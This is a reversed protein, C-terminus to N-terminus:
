DGSQPDGEAACNEQGVAEVDRNIAVTSPPDTLNYDGGEVVGVWDEIIDGVPGSVYHISMGFIPDYTLHLM